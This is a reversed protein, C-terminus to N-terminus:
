NRGSTGPRMAKKVLARGRSLSAADSSPSLNVAGEFVKCVALKERSSFKVSEQVEDAVLPALEALIRWLRGAARDRVSAVLRRLTTVGPLLIKQEVLRITTLRVVRDGCQCLGLHVAVPCSL